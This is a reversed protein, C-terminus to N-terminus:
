NLSVTLIFLVRWRVCVSVVYVAGGDLPRSNLCCLTFVNHINDIFLTCEVEQILLEM